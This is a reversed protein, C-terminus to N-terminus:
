VCKKVYTFNHINFTYVRKKTSTKKQFYAHQTGRFQFECDTSYMINITGKMDENSIRVELYHEYNM